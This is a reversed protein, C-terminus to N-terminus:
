ASSRQVTVTLRAPRQYGASSAGSMIEAEECESCGSVTAVIASTVVFLVSRVISSKMVSCGERRHLAPERPEGEFGRAGIGLRREQAHISPRDPAFNRGRVPSM